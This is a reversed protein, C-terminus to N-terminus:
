WVKYVGIEESSIELSLFYIFVLNQGKLEHGPCMEQCCVNTFESLVKCSHNTDTDRLYPATTKNQDKLFLVNEAYRVNKFYIKENEGNLDNLISGELDVDITNFFFFHTIPFLFSAKISYLEPELSEIFGQKM